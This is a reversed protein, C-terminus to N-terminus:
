NKVAMTLRGSFKRVVAQGKSNSVNMMGEIKTARLDDPNSAKADPSKKTVSITLTYNKTTYAMIHEANLGGTLKVLTGNIRLYAVTANSDTYVVYKQNTFDEDSLSILYNSNGTQQAPPTVADVSFLKGNPGATVQAFVTTISLAGFLFLSFITKM